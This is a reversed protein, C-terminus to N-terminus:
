GRRSRASRSSRATASCRDFDGCDPALDEANFVPRFITQVDRIREGIGVPAGTRAKVYPAATLHDAHVHTELV